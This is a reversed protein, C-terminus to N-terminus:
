MVPCDPNQMGDTESGTAVGDSIYRRRRGQRESKTMSCGHRSCERRERGRANVPPRWGNTATSLPADRSPFWLCTHKARVSALTESRRVPPLSINRDKAQSDESCQRSGGQPHRCCDLKIVRGADLTARAEAAQEYAVKGSDKWNFIRRVRSVFVGAEETIVRDRVSIDLNNLDQGLVCRSWFSTEQATGM